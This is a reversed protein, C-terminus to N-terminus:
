GHPDQSESPKSSSGFTKQTQSRVWKRWKYQYSFGLGLLLLVIAVVGSSSLGFETSYEFGFLKNSYFVMITILVAILLCGLCWKNGRYINSPKYWNKRKCHKCAYYTRRRTHGESTQWTKTVLKATTHAKCSFCWGLDLDPEHSAIRHEPIPKQSGSDRLAGM